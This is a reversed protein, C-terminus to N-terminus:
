IIEIKQFITFVTTEFIKFTYNLPKFLNKLREKLYKSRNKYEENNQLEPDFKHLFVLFDVTKDSDYQKLLELVEKLYKLSLDFRKKDQIDIVYIANDVDSFYKPADQLYTERYQKQGGFDWIFCNTEINSFGDIATFKEINVGKTPQLDYVDSNQLKKMATLITTKGANDLGFIILKKEALGAM